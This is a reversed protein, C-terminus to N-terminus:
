RGGLWDGFRVLWVPRGTEEAQVNTRAHRLTSEIRHIREALGVDAVQQHLRSVRGVKGEVHELRERLLEANARRRLREEPSEAAYKAAVSGVVAGVAVGGAAVLYDLPRFGASGTAPRPRKPWGGAPTSLPRGALANDLRTPSPIGKRALDEETVKVANVDPIVRKDSRLTYVKTVEAGFFLIFASYYVWLMVAVPAGALGFASTPAALTFYVSLGYKGIGFMLAATFAGFWVNKWATKVDPLFKYISAFLLSIVSISVVLEVVFALWKSNGAIDKAFAALLTSVFMSVMLLFGVGLVMAMSLLRNKVFGWIGQNPKPKVGWITNISDQLEVFVGAASVLLIITSFITAFIGANPKLTPSISKSIAEGAAPGALNTLQSYVQQQAKDRAVVGVIKITIVLLPALSLITYLALAASLRTANDRAWNKGADSYVEVMPYKLIAGLRSPRKAEVHSTASAPVADM